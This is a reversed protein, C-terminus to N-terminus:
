HTAQMVQTEQPKMRQIEENTNNNSNNIIIDMNYKM